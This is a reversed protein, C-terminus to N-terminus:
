SPGCRTRSAPPTGRSMGRSPWCVTPPRRAARGKKTDDGLMAAEMRAILASDQYYDDEKDEDEQDEDEQDEDQDEDDEQRARKTKPEEAEEAERKKQSDELVVTEQTNPPAQPTAQSM